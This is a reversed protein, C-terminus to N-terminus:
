GVSGALWLAGLTVCVGLALLLANAFTNSSKAIGLSFRRGSLPWFPAIGMPTIVDALLHSCITLVGIAFAFGGLGIPSVGGVRVTVGEGLTTGAGGLAMGAEGLATALAWGGAGLLVGICLAFALTHTSGRHSVGPVRMDLDPVMALAIVLGGGVISLAVRGEILLAYGLPAYVLLSVGTHGPRYV